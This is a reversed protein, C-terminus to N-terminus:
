DIFEFVATIEFAVARNDGATIKLHQGVAVAFCVVRSTGTM